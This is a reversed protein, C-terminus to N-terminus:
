TGWTVQSAFKGCGAPADSRSNGTLACSSVTQAVDAFIHNPGLHASFSFFHNAVNPAITKRGKIAVDAFSRVRLGAKLANVFRLWVRRCIASPARAAILGVIPAAISENFILSLLHRETFYPFQRASRNREIRQAGTYELFFPRQFRCQTGRHLFIFSPMILDEAADRNAVASQEVM